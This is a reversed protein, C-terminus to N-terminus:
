SSNSIKNKFFLIWNERNYNTKGHCKYCLPVLNDYVNNSKNYDIHHIALKEHRIDCVQCTYDYSEKIIVKLSKNFELGYEGYSVGGLWNPHKDKKPTNKCAKEYQEYNYAWKGIKSSRLYDKTAQTHQKGFFPNKDGLRPNDKLYAKLSKSIKEAVGPFTSPNNESSLKHMKERFANAFDLGVRDEWPTIIQWYKQCLRSCFKTSKYRSLLKGYNPNHENGNYGIKIFNSCDPNKCKEFKYYTKFKSM